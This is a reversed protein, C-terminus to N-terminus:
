NIPKYLFFQFRLFIPNNSRLPIKVLLVGLLVKKMSWQMNAVSEVCNIIFSTELFCNYSTYHVFM